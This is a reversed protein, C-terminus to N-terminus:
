ISNEPTDAAVIYAASGAIAGVMAMASLNKAKVKLAAKKLMSFMKESISESKFIKKDANMNEFILKTAAYKDAKKDVVTKLQLGLLEKKLDEVNNNSFVRTIAEDITEVDSIKIASSLERSNKIMPKLSYVNVEPDVVSSFFKNIKEAEFLEEPTLDKRLEKSVQKVFTDSPVQDTLLGPKFWSYLAGLGTGVIASASLNHRYKKFADQEGIPPISM